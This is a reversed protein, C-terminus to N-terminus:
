GHSFRALSSLVLAGMTLMYSLILIEGWMEKLTRELAISIIETLALAILLVGFILYLIKVAGVLEMSAAYTPIVDVVLYAILIVSVLVGIHRLAQAAWGLAKTTGNGTPSGIWLGVMAKAQFLERRYSRLLGIAAGGAIIAGM